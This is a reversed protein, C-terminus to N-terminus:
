TIEKKTEQIGNEREEEDILESAKVDLANALKKILDYSPNSRYGTMLQSLYSYGLGSKEALEIQNMEKQKMIAKLNTGFM